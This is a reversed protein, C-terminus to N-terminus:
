VSGLGDESIVSGETNYEPDISVLNGFVDSVNSSGTMGGLVKKLSDYPTAGGAGPTFLGVAGAGVGALASLPSM